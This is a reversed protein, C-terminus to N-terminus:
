QESEMMSECAIGDRDRDISDILSEPSDLAGSAEYATQADYWTAYDGCTSVTTGGGDSARTVDGPAASADGDGLSTAGGGSASVNDDGAPEGRAPPPPEPNSGDNDIQQESVIEADATQQASTNTIGSRNEPDLPDSETWFLEEGDGYGDGDTDYFLPDTGYVNGEDGDAVGDEDTDPNGPDLGADPEAADPYNDGDLDGPSPDPASGADDYGSGSEGSEYGTDAPARNVTTRTRSVGGDAGNDSATVPGSANSVDIVTGPPLSSIDGLVIDGGDNNAITGRGAGSADGDANIIIPADQALAPVALLSLSLGAGLASALLRNM